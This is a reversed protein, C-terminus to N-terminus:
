ELKGKGAGGGVGVGMFSVFYRQFLRAGTLFLGALREAVFAM